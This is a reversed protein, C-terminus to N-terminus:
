QANQLAVEIAHIRLGPLLAAIRPDREGEERLATQFEAATTVATSRSLERIREWVPAL